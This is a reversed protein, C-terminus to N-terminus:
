GGATWFKKGTIALMVPWFIKAKSKEVKEWWCFLKRKKKMGEGPPAFNM